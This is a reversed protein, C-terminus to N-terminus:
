TARHSFNWVLEAIYCNNRLGLFSNSFIFNHLTISKAGITYSLGDSTRAMPVNNNEIRHWTSILSHTWRVGQLLRSVCHRSFDLTYEADNSFTNGFAKAHAINTHSEEADGFFTNGCSKDHTSHHEVIIATHTHTHTHTCTRQMVPSLTAVHKTMHAM